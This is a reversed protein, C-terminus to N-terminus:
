FVLTKRKLFLPLACDHASDHTFQQRRVLCSQHAPNSKSISNATPHLALCSLLQCASVLSSSVFVSFVSSPPGPAGLHCPRGSKNACLSFLFLLHTHSLSFPFSRSHCAAILFPSPSSSANKRRAHKYLALPFRRFLPLHVCVCFYVLYNNHKNREGEGRKNVILLALLFNSLNLTWQLLRWRTMLSKSGISTWSIWKAGVSFHLLVFGECLYLSTSDIKDEYSEKWDITDRNRKRVTTLRSEVWWLGGVGGRERECDRDRGRGRNRDRMREKYYM